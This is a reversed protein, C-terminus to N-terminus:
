QGQLRELKDPCEPPRVRVAGVPKINLLCEDCDAGYVLHYLVVGVVGCLLGGVFAVAMMWWDM